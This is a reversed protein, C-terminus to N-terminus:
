SPKTRGASHKAIAADALDDLRGTAADNEIKEDLCAADFELFWERFRALEDPLLHAVTRELEQLPM